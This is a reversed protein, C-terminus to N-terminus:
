DKTRLPKRAVQRDRGPDSGLAALRDFRLRQAYCIAVALADTTDTALRQDALGLVLRVMRAVQQKDARGNGTLARKVAAPTLEAIDVAELALTTLLAGRAQALVILSRSNVGHFPSELVATDPQHERVVHRLGLSLQALRPALSKDSCRITGHALVLLSAGRREIV